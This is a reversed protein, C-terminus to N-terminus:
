KWPALAKRNGMIADLQTDQGEGLFVTFAEERMLFFIRVKRWGLVGLCVWIKTQNM